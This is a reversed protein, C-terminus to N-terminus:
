ACALMKGKNQSNKYQCTSSIPLTHTGQFPWRVLLSKDKRDSDFLFSSSNWSSVSDALHHRISSVQHLFFLTSTLPPSCLLRKISLLFQFIVSDFFFFLALWSGCVHKLTNLTFRKRELVQLSNFRFSNRPNANKTNKEASCCIWKMFGSRMMMVLPRIQLICVPLMLLARRQM